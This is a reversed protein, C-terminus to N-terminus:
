GPANTVLGCNYISLAARQRPAAEIEIKGAVHKYRSPAQIRLEEAPRRPREAPGDDPTDPIVEPPGATMRGKSSTKLQRM